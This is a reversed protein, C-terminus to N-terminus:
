DNMDYEDAPSRKQEIYEDFAQLIVKQNSSRDTVDEERFSQELVSIQEIRPRSSAQGMLETAESELQNEFNHKESPKMTVQDEFSNAAFQKSTPIRDVQRHNLRTRCPM